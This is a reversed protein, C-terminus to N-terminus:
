LRIQKHPTPEKGVDNGDDNGVDFGNAVVVSGSIVFGISVSGDVVIGTVVSGGLIIGPSGM